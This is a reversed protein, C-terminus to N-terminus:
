MFHLLQEHIHSNTAVIIKDEFLSYEGGKHNTVKGGAEALIIMGASVDWAKLNMEYYGEFVGRAVMCLDLSASGFRRIDQSAPLVKKLTNVTWELDDQCRDNSYPFGTAILSRKFIPQESVGLKKDDLYAGQGVEAWHCEDLIPNYVIGGFPLGNKYIGISIACFPVKHVFNTTGDIPDIIFTNFINCDGNNSEEAIINFEPFLKYLEQKLFEEIEVDYQTVLDKTEKHTIDKISNYGAYFLIGAEKVCKIVQKIM